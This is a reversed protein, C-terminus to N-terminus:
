KYKEFQPRRWDGTALRWDGTALPLNTTTEAFRWNDLHLSPNKQPLPHSCGLPTSTPNGPFATSLFSPPNISASSTAWTTSAPPSSISGPPPASPVGPLPCAAPPKTPSKWANGKPSFCSQTIGWWMVAACPPLVLLTVSGPVPKGKAA